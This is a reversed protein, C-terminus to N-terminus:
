KETEIDFVNPALEKLRKRSYEEVEQGTPFKMIEQVMRRADELKVSRVLKKIQLLSQPSMSFEKLNMGLLILALVPEGSMEGCLSVGIGAKDAAEITQKILRLVAPHGPEYLNATQENVRYIAM